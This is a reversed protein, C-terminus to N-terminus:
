LADFLSITLVAKRKKVKEAITKAIFPPPIPLVM